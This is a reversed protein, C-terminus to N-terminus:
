SEIDWMEDAKDVYLIGDLHDYEHCFARALLGEAEYEVEEGDRGLGRIKVYAPRVIRGVRDPVSLCGEEGDEEGRTEVIEPNILVKQGSGDGLDVVFLRRMVGVQPAALGVGQADYLTEFMDDILERIRDNVEPVPRCKKRLIEDGVKVIKRLAM